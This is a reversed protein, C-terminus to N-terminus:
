LQQMKYGIGRINLIMGSKLKKQLKHILSRMSVSELLKDGWVYDHIQEITVSQNLNNVLLQLLLSEKQTLEIENGNKYLKSSNIDYSLEPALDIKTNDFKDKYSNKLHYKIRIYLEEFNFPKKIFDDCGTDYSKEINEINAEASIIIVPINKDEGRLLELIKHGDFGPVNIDLIYLDFKSALITNAAEYGNTDSHVYFNKNELSSKIIKNLSYDDELLFIKM